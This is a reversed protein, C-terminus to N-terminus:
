GGAAEFLVNARGEGAVGVPDEGVRSPSGQSGGEGMGLGGAVAGSAEQDLHATLSLEVALM